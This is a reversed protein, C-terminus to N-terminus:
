CLQDKRGAVRASDYGLEALKHAPAVRHALIYIGIAFDAKRM